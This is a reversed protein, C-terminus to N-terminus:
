MVHDNHYKTSMFKSGVSEKGVTSLHAMLPKRFVDDIVFDKQAFM